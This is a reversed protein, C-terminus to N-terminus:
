QVILDVVNSTPLTLAGHANAAAVALESRSTKVLDHLKHLQSDTLENGFNAASRALSNLLAIRTRTPRVVNLAAEAIARQASANPILALVSGAETVVEQRNDDLAQTLAPQADSVDFVGERSSTVERLLNLATMAYQMAEDTSFTYGAYPKMSEEIAAYLSQEDPASVVTNVRDAHHLRQTLEVQVGLSVIAVIPVNALKYNVATQRHLVEIQDASQQALILDIGPSANVEDAVDAISMGGYVQFGMRQLTVTMVNVAEQHQGLAVAFRANNQRVAEALVPVVRHSGPFEAEPRAQALAFASSFRVRRDPYSLARLLPQATGERNILADTGATATLAEIADLALETDGDDLARDLVDHQRLPGAMNLYFAPSLMTSAYSADQVGAPLRNERRANAMLWLSLAVDMEPNFRLAQRAFRMALVDGYVRGEVSIPELGAERSFNWVLGRGTVPDVQPLVPDITAAAYHKQGLMLFLESTSVGEPLHAVESLRDYASQVLLRADHDTKANDLVQKVFPLAEPYGIEALVRAIQGMQVPELEPLAVSLPYTMSQGISVMAALVYPHLKEQQDDLLVRLLHPAAYPGAARLRRTANLNARTGEALRRIDAQIRSADRSRDIQAAEIRTIFQQATKKLSEQEAARLLTVDYDGYESAEVIDLLEANEVSSLLATGAAAALDPRAIRVYHNFDSWLSAPDAEQALALGATSLCLLITTLGYAFKQIMM